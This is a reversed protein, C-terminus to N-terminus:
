SMYLFLIVFDNLMITRLSLRFFFDFIRFTLSLLPWYISIIHPTMEKERGVRKGERDRDREKKGEMKGDNM